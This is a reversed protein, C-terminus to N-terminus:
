KLNVIHNILTHKPEWGLIDKADTNIVFSERVNGPQDEINNFICGFREHFMVALDNVSTMRGTGLEWADKHSNNGMGIKELGDVIDKVHIFDRQQEGDGVINLPLNNEINYRWIGIVNADTPHLHEGTGYVNYFRAIEIDLNYTTRYLKCLEEGLYKSLAYPSVYPNTHRSASGAYVVKINNKRAYELVHQTGMVNNDVYQTPVEFSEQVRVDAALHYILDPKSALKHIKELPLLLTTNNIPKRDLSFVSHGQNRLSKVLNQGIFGSGGTVLIRM